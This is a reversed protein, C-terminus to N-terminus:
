TYGKPLWSLKLESGNRQTKQEIFYGWCFNEWAKNWNSSSSVKGFCIQLNHTWFNISRERNRRSIRSECLLSAMLVSGWSSLRGLCALSIAKTSTFSSSYAPFVIWGNLATSTWIFEELFIVVGMLLSRSFFLLLFRGSCGVFDSSLVDTLSSAISWIRRSVSPPVLSKALFIYM